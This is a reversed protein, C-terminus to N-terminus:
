AIVTVDCTDSHGSYTATITATGVGVPTVLGGASVTAVSPASSLYTAASTRNVSNNDTVTLQQTEVDSLDLETTAPTVTVATVGSGVGTEQKLFRRKQSDPYIACTYEVSAMDQENDTRGGSKVSAPVTTIRRKTKGDDTRTEFGIFVNAPKADIVYQDTDGPSELYETVANRELATFKRELRRNRYAKKIEGYGWANFASEDFEVTEPFGDEGNLLGVLEWQAGAVEDFGQDVGTPKIEALTWPTGDEKVARHIWVDANDWIDVNAPQGGM